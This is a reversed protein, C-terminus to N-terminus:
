HVDTQLYSRLFLMSVIFALIRIKSKDISSIEERYDFLEVTATSRTNFICAERLEGLRSDIDNYIPVQDANVTGMSLGTKIAHFLFVSHMAELVRDQDQFSFSINSIGSSTKCGPYPLYLDHLAGVTM